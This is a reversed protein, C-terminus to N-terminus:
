VYEEPKEATALGPNVVCTLPGGPEISAEVSCILGVTSLHAIAVGVDKLTMDCQDAVLVQTTEVVGNSYVNALLTLMVTAAKPNTRILDSVEAFLTREMRLFGLGNDAAGNNLDLKETM